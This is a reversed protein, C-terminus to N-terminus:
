TNFVETRAALVVETSMRQGGRLFEIQLADGIRSQAVLAIVEQHSSIAGGNITVIVDGPLLGAREAPSGALLEAVYAGGSLNQNFTVGLGASEEVLPAPVYAYPQSGYFGGGYYNRDYFQYYRHRFPDWRWYWWGFGPRFFRRWHAHDHRDRDRDRDWNRDHDRDGRDRDRDRSDMSRRDVVRDRQM